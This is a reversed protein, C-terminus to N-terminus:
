HRALDTAEPRIREGFSISTVVILVGVVLLALSRLRGGGFGTIGVTVLGHRNAWEVAQLINASNGSGSIAFVLVLCSLSRRWRSGWGRVLSLM